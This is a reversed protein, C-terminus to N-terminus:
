SSPRAGLRPDLWAALDALVQDRGLENLPEHLMDPYTMLTKDPSSAREFLRITERADVVPDDAGILILLPTRIEAARAAVLPGGEVMGFFLPASIRDMRLPDTRHARQMEPDRTMREATIAARLTVRPAFRRLIQGIMLKHRPVQMALRLTPNSLILGSLAPGDELAVRLAVQGGNSHGLVFRPLGPRIQAVWSLAARLDATLEDYHGVVGRRGPSRGHGRLDPAVVEAEVAPGLFEAVHRYCGGHEGFGHSVVVVGRPDPRTWHWGRLTQGDDAPITVDRPAAPTTLM